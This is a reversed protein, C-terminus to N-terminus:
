GPVVQGDPRVATAFPVCRQGIMEIASTHLEGGASLSYPVGSAFRGEDSGRLALPVVTADPPHGSRLEVLTMSSLHRIPESRTGVETGVRSEKTARRELLEGAEDDYGFGFREMMELPLQKVQDLHMAFSGQGYIGVGENVFEIGGVRGAGHAVFVDAGAKMAARGLAVTHDPPETRSRGAGQQHLSVVVWDAQRKAEQVAAVIREVDGPFPETTFSWNDGIVFKRGMFYFVGDSDVEDSAPSPGTMPEARGGGGRRMSKSQEWGMHQSIDRLNNVAAEPITFACDYRLLNVGPRGTFYRDRDAAMVGLPPPFSLDGLGRPGYDAAAIMAVVARPTELYTPAAAEALTPGIGAPRLTPWRELYRLTTLIGGEGFDASHNNALSLLKMGLWSLEDGVYPPTRVFTAARGNGAAYAHWDEGAQVCGELNTFGGDTSRIADVVELFDKEVCASLRRQLITDGTFMLRVDSM